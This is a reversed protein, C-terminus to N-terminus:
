INMVFQVFNMVSNDATKSTRFNKRYQHQRNLDGPNNRQTGHNENRANLLFTGGEYELTLPALFLEELIELGKFIYTTLEISVDSNLLGPSAFIYVIKM